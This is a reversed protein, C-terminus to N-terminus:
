PVGLIAVLIGHMVKVQCLPPTTLTEVHVAAALKRIAEKVARLAKDQKLAEGPLVFELRLLELESPEVAPLEWHFSEM